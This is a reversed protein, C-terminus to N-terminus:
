VVLQSVRLSVWAVIGTLVSGWAMDILAIKTTFGKVVALGTLDYTGYAVLGFALGLFLALAPFDSKSAPLLVFLMMGAAYLLYFVIAAPLLPTTRLLDGMESVYFPRGPGLLWIMDLGVFLVLCIVYSVLFGFVSDM